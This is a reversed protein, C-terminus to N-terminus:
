PYPGPPVVSTSCHGWALGRVGPALQLSVYLHQAGKMPLPPARPRLPVKLGLSTLSQCGGVCAQQGLCKPSLGRCGESVPSCM